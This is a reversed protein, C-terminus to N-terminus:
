DSVIEGDDYSISLSLMCMDESAIDAAPITYSVPFCGRLLAKVPQDLGGTSKYLRHFVITVAKKYKPDIGVVPGDSTDIQGSQAARDKAMAHWRIYDKRTADDSLDLTVNFTGPQTRGIPVVTGDPRESTAFAIEIEDRQTIGNGEALDEVIFREKAAPLSNPPLTAKRVM